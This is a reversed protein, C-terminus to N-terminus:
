AALPQPPAIRRFLGRAKALALARLVGTSVSKTISVMCGISSVMVLDAFTEFIMKLAQYATQTMDSTNVAQQLQIRVLSLEQRLITDHLLLKLDFM